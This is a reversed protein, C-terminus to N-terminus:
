CACEWNSEGRRGGLLGGLPISNCWTTVELLEEITEHGGGYVHDFRRGYHWGEKIGKTKIGLVLSAVAAVMKMLTGKAKALQYPSQDFSPSMRPMQMSIIGLTTFGIGRSLTITCSNEELEPYLAKLM